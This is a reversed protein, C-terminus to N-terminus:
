VRRDRSWLGVFGTFCIINLGKTCGEPQRAAGPNSRTHTRGRGRAGAEHHRGTEERVRRVGGGAGYDPECVCVDPFLSFLIVFM